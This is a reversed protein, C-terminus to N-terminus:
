SPWTQILVSLALTGIVSVTSIAGAQRERPNDPRLRVTRSAARKPSASAAAARYLLRRLRSSLRLRGPLANKGAARIAERPPLRNARRRCSRILGSILGSCTGTPIGSRGPAGLGPAHRAPIAAVRRRLAQTQRTNSSRKPTNRRWTPTSCKRANRTPRRANHRATQAPLKADRWAPEGPRMPLARFTGIDADAAPVARWGSCPPSCFGAGLSRAARRM